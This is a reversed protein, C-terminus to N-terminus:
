ELLGLLTGACWEATSWGDQGPRLTVAGSGRGIVEDLQEQESPIDGHGQPLVVPCPVLSAHQACVDYLLRNSFMPDSDMEEFDTRVLARGISLRAMHGLWEETSPVWPQGRRGGGFGAQADFLEIM